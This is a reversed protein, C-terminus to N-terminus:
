PCSASSARPGSACTRVLSPRTRVNPRATSATVYSGGSTCSSLLAGLVSLSLTLGRIRMDSTRRNRFSRGKADRSAEVRELNPVMSGAETDLKAVIDAAGVGYGKEADRLTKAIVSTKSGFSEGGNELIDHYKRVAGVLGGEEM